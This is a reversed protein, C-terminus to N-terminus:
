TQGKPPYVQKIQALLTKRKSPLVCATLTIPAGKAWYYGFYEVTWGAWALLIVLAGV